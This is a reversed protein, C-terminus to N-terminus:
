RCRSFLPQEKQVTVAPANRASRSPVPEEPLEPDPGAPGAQAHLYHELLRAVQGPM